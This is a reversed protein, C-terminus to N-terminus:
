LGMFSFSSRFALSADCRPSSQQPRHQPINERGGPIYMSKIQVRAVIIRWGGDGIWRPSFSVFTIYGTQFYIVKM